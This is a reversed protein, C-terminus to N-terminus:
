PREYAPTRVIRWADDGVVFDLTVRSPEGDKAYDSRFRREGESARPTTGYLAFCIADLISSKGTGTRGSILFIGDAAYRNLDVTQTDRFPGFGEIVL